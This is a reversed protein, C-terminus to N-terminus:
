RYSHNRRGQYTSYPCTTMGQIERLRDVWGERRVPRAAKM